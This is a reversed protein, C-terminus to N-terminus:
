DKGDAPDPCCSELKTFTEEFKGPLTLAIKLSNQDKDATDLNKSAADVVKKFAHAADTFAQLDAVKIEAIAATIMEPTVNKTDDATAPSPLNLKKYANYNNYIVKNGATLLTSASKVLEESARLSFYNAFLDQLSPGGAATDVTSTPAGTIIKLPTDIKQTMDSVAKLFKLLNLLKNSLDSSGGGGGGGLHNILSAIDTQATEAVEFALQFKFYEGLGEVAFKGVSKLFPGYQEWVQKLRVSLKESAEAPNQGAESASEAEEESLTGQGETATAVDKQVEEPTNKNMNDLEEPSPEKLNEDIDSNIKNFEEAEADTLGAGAEEMSEAGLDDILGGSEAFIAEFEAM